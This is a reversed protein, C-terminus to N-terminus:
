SHQLNFIDVDVIVIFMCVLTRVARAQAYSTLGAGYIFSALCACKGFNSM